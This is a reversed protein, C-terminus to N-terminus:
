PSRFKVPLIDAIWVVQESGCYRCRRKRIQPESQSPATLAPEDESCDPIKSPKPEGLYDRVTDLDDRKAPHWIGYYRVKIFRKPLIHQLFRRIFEIGPITTREWTKKERNKYRFTVKGDDIREIRSNTIAVRCFYRGLYDIVDQQGDAAIKSWIGWAENWTKLLVKDYLDTRQMRKQFSERFKMSLAKVPVLFTPNSPLWRDGFYTLGGAPVLCHLHPHFRLVQSWTHLMALMGVRGGVFRPDSALIQLSDWASKFLIDFMIRQNSRTMKAIIEPVTFTLHFYRVPLIEDRRAEIWKERRDGGCKPCAKHQCSHYEYEDRGCSKCHYVHGGLSDTRCNLISEFAQIHSPLMSDGYRDLYETGYM